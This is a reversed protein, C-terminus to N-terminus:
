VEKANLQEEMQKLSQIRNREHEEYHLKRHCNACLVICKKLEEQLKKKSNRLYSITKEKKSPDVHHFEICAPHNEGCKSCSLTRKWQEFESLRKLEYNRANRKLKAANSQYYKQYKEKNKQYSKKSQEKKRALREEDTYIKKRMFLIYLM